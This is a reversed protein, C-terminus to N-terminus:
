LFLNFQLFFGYRSKIVARVFGVLLLLDNLACLWTQNCTPLLKLTNRDDNEEM